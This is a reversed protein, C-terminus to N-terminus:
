QNLQVYTNVIFGNNYQFVNKGGVERGLQVIQNLYGAEARFAKGFKYGVLISARNQDFVNEGVNKGFGIFVEDYGAAYVKDTLPVDLRPMYRIRNLYTWSQPAEQHLDTYRALWRQELRFRHSLTAKGVPTTVVAQEYARHETFTRPVAALTIDGYPYTLIWGYGAHLTVQPHIKYNVGLRLLSQQWNDVWDERRWQYEAHLSLKPTIAPTVITTLWGIRHSQSIRNQAGAAGWLLVFAFTLIRKM